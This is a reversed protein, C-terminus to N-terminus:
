HFGIKKANTRVPAIFTEGMYPLGSELICSIKAQPIRFGPNQFGFYLELLGSDWWYNSDLIWTGSVFVLIWYRSDPIWLM